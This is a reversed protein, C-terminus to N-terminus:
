PLESIIKNLEATIAESIEDLRMNFAYEEADVLEEGYRRVDGFERFLLAKHVLMAIQLQARPAASLPENDVTQECINAYEEWVSQLLDPSPGPRKLAELVAMRAELLEATEEFEVRPLLERMKDDLCPAQSGYEKNFTHEPNPTNM